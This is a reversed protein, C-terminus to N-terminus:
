ELRFGPQTQVQKLTTTSCNMISKDSPSDLPSSPIKEVPIVLENAQPTEQDKSIREIRRLFEKLNYKHISFSYDEINKSGIQTSIIGSRDKLSNILAISKKKNVMEYIIEIKDNKNYLNELIIRLFEGNSIIDFIRYSIEDCDHNGAFSLSESQEYGISLSESCNSLRRKQFEKLEFNNGLPNISARLVKLEMELNLIKLLLIERDKKDNSSKCNGM